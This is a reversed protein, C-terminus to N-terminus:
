SGSSMPSRRRRSAVWALAGAILAIPVALLWRRRVRNKSPMGLRARLQELNAHGGSELKGGFLAHAGVVGDVHSEPSHLTGHWGPGSVTVAIPAKGPVIVLQDVLCNPQRVSFRRGPPVVLLGHAAGRGAVM